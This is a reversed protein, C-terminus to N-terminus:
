AYPLSIMNAPLRQYLTQVPIVRWIYNGGIQTFVCYSYVGNIRKHFGNKEDRIDTIDLGIEAMNKGVSDLDTSGVIEGNEMDIAYYNATLDIRLMSFIYSLENKETAKMLRVPEMGVQVILQGDESWLASYQMM